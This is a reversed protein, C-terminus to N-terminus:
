ADVPGAGEMFRHACGALRVVAAFVLRTDVALGLLAGAALWRPRRTEVLVYAGFLFLSALAFTKVITFYGFVLGSLAYLCTAAVAPWWGARREVHLYLLAGIATAALASLSRAAYWSEGFVGIWAGYVYPLLPMQEYFFDRYPVYGHLALRSAYAYVGEDGDLFRFAVLPGFVLAQAGGAALASRASTM